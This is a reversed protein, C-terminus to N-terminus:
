GRGWARPDASRRPALDRGESFSKAALFEGASEPHSRSYCAGEPAQGEREKEEREKEAKEREEGEEGLEHDREYRQEARELVEHEESTLYGPPCAEAREERTARRVVVFATAGLAALLALGLLVRRPASFRHM